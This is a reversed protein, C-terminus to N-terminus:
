EVIPTEDTDDDLNEHPAPPIEHADVPTKDDLDDAAERVVETSTVRWFGHQRALIVREDALAVRADLVLGGNRFLTAGVIDGGVGGYVFCREGEVFPARGIANPPIAVRDAPVCAHSRASPIIAHEGVGFDGDCRVAVVDGARGPTVVDVVAPAWDHDLVAADAITGRDVAGACVYGHVVGERDPPWRCALLFDHDARPVVVADIMGFLRALEGADPWAGRAALTPADDADFGADLLLHRGLTERFDSAAAADEGTVIVIVRRVGCGHLAALSQGADGTRRGAVVVAVDAGRSRKVRDELTLAPTLEELILDLSDTEAHMAQRAPSAVHRSFTSAHQEALDALVDRKTESERADVILVRARPKM